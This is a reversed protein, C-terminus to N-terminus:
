ADEDPGLNCTLTILYSILDGLDAFGRREGSLPDELSFRWGPKGEETVKWFRLLYSYYEVTERGEAPAV